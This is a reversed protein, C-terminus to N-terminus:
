SKRMTDIDPTKIASPSHFDPQSRLARVKNNMPTPAMVTTDNNEGINTAEVTEEVCTQCM